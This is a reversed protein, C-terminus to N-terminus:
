KTAFCTEKIGCQQCKWEEKVKEPLASQQVLSNVRHILELIEDKLFLNMVVKRRENVARYEVFGYNVDKGAHETLLLMYAGLQVMHEKWVGDRPAKGTKLEIPVFNEDLQDIVGVLGLTESVIKIEPESKPLSEWLMEKFVKKEHAHSFISASKAQAEKLFSPWLERYVAMPDLGATRLTYKEEQISQILATSYIHRYRLELDQISINETFSCLIDKDERGSREITRHTITGYLTREKPKEHVGLVKKFYLKRQCFLYATLDTVSLM